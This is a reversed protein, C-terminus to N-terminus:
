GRRRDGFRREFSVTNMEGKLGVSFGMLPNEARRRDSVLERATSHLYGTSDSVVVDLFRGNFRSRGSFEYLTQGDPITGLDIDHNQEDATRTPDLMFFFDVLACDRDIPYGLTESFLVLNHIFHMMLLSAHRLAPALFETGHHVIAFSWWLEIEATMEVISGRGDLSIDLSYLPLGSDTPGSGRPEHVIHIGRPHAGSTKRLAQQLIAGQLELWSVQAFPENFVPTFPGFLRVSERPTPVFYKVRFFEPDLSMQERFQKHLQAYLCFFLDEPLMGKRADVIGHLVDTIDATYRDFEDGIAPSAAAEDSTVMPPASPREATSSREYRNVIMYSTASKRPTPNKSPIEGTALRVTVEGSKQPPSM